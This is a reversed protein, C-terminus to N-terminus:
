PLTYTVYVLFGLRSANDTAITMDEEILLDAAVGFGFGGQSVFGVGGSAGFDTATSSPTTGVESVRTWQVRPMVWPRVVVSGAQTSGQIAVGVPFNLVSSTRMSGGSAPRSLSVSAPSDDAMPVHYAVSGALSVEDDIGTVDSLVYAGYVGFSVKEMGRAFGAGFTDLKRSQDNLGLAYGAGLSNVGDADGSALALVPTNTLQGTAPTAALLAVAAIYFVFRTKIM